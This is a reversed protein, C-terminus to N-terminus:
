LNATHGGDVPILCGTMWRSADSCLLLMAGYLDEAIGTRGMLSRSVFYKYGRSQPDTMESTCYGPLIANVTINYKALEVAMARTLAIVGGKSACYSSQNGAGMVALISSINVVKGYNQSKMLRCVERSVNYVGTLNTAIVTDWQEKTQETIDTSKETIGANNVLIDIRTVSKIKSIVDHEDAVDCPLISCKGGLNQIVDQTELLREKRRGMLIVTAGQEALMEAYGRGLGSTAGTVLAVKGNIDFYNKM